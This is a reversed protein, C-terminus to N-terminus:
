VRRMLWTGAGIALADEIAGAFANPMRRRTAFGRAAALLYSAAIAGAAGTMACAVRHRGRCVSAGVIAGSVVRGFLPLPQTRAPITPLKDAAIEGAALFSLIRSVSSSSAGRAVLAPALMSRSGSIAGLAGATIMSNM